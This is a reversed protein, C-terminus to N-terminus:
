RPADGSPVAACSLHGATRIPSKKDGERVSSPMVQVASGAGGATVGSGTTATDPTTVTIDRTTVMTATGRITVTTATVRITAATTIAIRITAATGAAGVTAGIATDGAWKKSPQM